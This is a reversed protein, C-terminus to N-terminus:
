EARMNRRAESDARASDAQTRSLFTYLKQEIVRPNEGAQISLIGELIMEKYLLERASQNKVKNAMPTFILNALVSGYFTTVLAVAM